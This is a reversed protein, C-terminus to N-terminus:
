TASRYPFRRWADHEPLNLNPTGDPDVDDPHVRGMVRAWPGVLAYYTDAPIDDRRELAWEAWAIPDSIAPARGANAAILIRAHAVYAPATDPHAIAYYGIATRIEADTPDPDPTGGKRWGRTM